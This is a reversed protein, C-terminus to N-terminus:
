AMSGGSDSKKVSGPYSILAAGTAHQNQSFIRRAYINSVNSRTTILIGQIFIEVMSAAPVISPPMARDAAGAEAAVGHSELPM